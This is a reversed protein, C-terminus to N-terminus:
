RWKILLNDILRARGLRAAALVVLSACDREPAGLDGERRISVYEPAFGAESLASMGFAELEGFDREGGGIRRDIERLTRYLAPAQRREDATLYANRSSMALGSEERVTPAGFVEVPFCLDEVLRQIVVLQQFDKSGFVAVDPQVINFLKTVVTAVGRFHGPRGAGCLIDSVGPVEVYTLGERGRPYVERESPLFLLDVGEAELKRMDESETRPYADLDEGPGFQLPNVFISVAVRDARERAQRVLALHGEHLNGMTPVFALRQGSRRWQATMRRVGQITKEVQM